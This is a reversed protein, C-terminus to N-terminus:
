KREISRWLPNEHNRTDGDAIRRWKADALDHRKLINDLQRAFRLIPAPFHNNCYIAKENEGQQIWLIWQTGDAVEAHYGRHMALLQNAQVAKVLQNIAKGDLNLTAEQWFASEPGLGRYTRRRHLTTTGHHFVSVTNLGFQGSGRGLQIRFPQTADLVFPASLDEDIKVLPHSQVPADALEPGETDDAGPRNSFGFVLLCLVIGLPLLVQTVKSWGSGPDANQSQSLTNM